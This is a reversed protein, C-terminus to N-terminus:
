RCKAKPRRVDVTVVLLVEVGEVVVKGFELLVELSADEAASCEIEAAIDPGELVSIRQITWKTPACDLCEPLEVSLQAPM